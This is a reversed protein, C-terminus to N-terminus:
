VHKGVCHPLSGFFSLKDSPKKTVFNLAGGMAGSGYVSSAPGYTVDVREIDYLTFPLSMNHHGTQPDNLSVGDLLVLNEEFPAGRLSIDAQVGYPGRTRVDTLTHTKLAQSASTYHSAEDDEFMISDSSRIEFRESPEEQSIRTASVIVPELEISEEAKANYFFTFILPLIYVLTKTITSLFRLNKKNRM